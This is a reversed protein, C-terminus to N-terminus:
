GYRPNGREDRSNCKQDSYCALAHCIGNGDFKCIYRADPIFDGTRTKIM